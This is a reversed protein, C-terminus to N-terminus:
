AVARPRGARRRQDYWRACAATRNEVCLKELLNQVHKRVTHTSCGLIGAIDGNSKGEGIWRWVETERPTLAEAVAPAASNSSNNLSGRYGSRKQSSM